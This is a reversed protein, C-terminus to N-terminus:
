VQGLISMMDTGVSPIVSPRMCFAPQGGDCDFLFVLSSLCGCVRCGIASCMLDNMRVCVNGITPNEKFM